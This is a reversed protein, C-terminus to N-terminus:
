VEFDFQPTMNLDGSQFYLVRDSFSAQSITSINIPCHLFYSSSICLTLSGSAFPELFQGRAAERLEHALDSTIMM